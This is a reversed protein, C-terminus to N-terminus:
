FDLQIERIFHIHLENKILEIKNLLAKIQVGKKKALYLQESFKFDTEENPKFSEADDRQIIFIIASFYDNLAHILESVHRTGRSTPADPFLAVGDKVLNCGKVEVLYKKDDKKLFFDLRSQGYSYEPKIVDFKTDFIKNQKLLHFVFKNPVRSDIGVIRNEHEIAVLDFKTKRNEKQIPVIFVKKGEYLLEKLRGPDPIFCDHIEQKLQVRGLFRNPRELFTAPIVNKAILM